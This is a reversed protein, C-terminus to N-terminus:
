RNKKRRAFFALGVLGGGLLVFTGPEPVTTPANRIVAGIIPSNVFAISQNPIKGIQAQKIINKDNDVWRWIYHLNRNNFGIKNDYVLSINAEGYLLEAGIGIGTKYSTIDNLLQSSSMSWDLMGFKLIHYNRKLLTDAVIEGKVKSMNKRTKELRKQKIIPLEFNSKLVVSLSRYNFTLNIGFIEALKSSELYLMGMEKIMENKCSFIKEGVKIQKKNFNMFYTNNEDEIFGALSDGRQGVFCPIMLISFLDEINVYLINNNSYIIDFDYNGYDEIILLVPIEDYIFRPNKKEKKEKDVGKERKDIVNEVYYDTNENNIKDQAFLQTESIIFFFFVVLICKRVIISVFLGATAILTFARLYFLCFTAILLRCTSFKGVIKCKSM